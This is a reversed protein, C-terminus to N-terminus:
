PKAATRQQSYRSILMTTIFLRPRISDVLIYEADDSHGGAGQLGFSEIVAGSSRVQAYAADTGGGTPTELIGLPWQIDAAITQALRAVDLGKQNPVLPPRGRVFDLRVSTDPVLTKSIRERLAAEILDFDSSKNARIDATARADPPIMNAVTGAQALTWNFKVGPRIITLDRTQLVQHALEYLANRGAEPNAGSHSARGKVMLDARAISSTALRVYDSRSGSGEFSIVLDHSEGLAMITDRSGPSGIEEDANILVTLEGYSDIQAAKLMELTHLIVAIGARDDQIGLGYAKGDSLRFPQKRSDGKQYVTDMHAILAIRASGRGTLKALIMPAGAVTGAGPVIQYAISLAELRACIVARIKALGELDKSGSEIAVLAELTKLLAPAQETAMAAIQAAQPDLAENAVSLRPIAASAFVLCAAALLATGRFHRSM